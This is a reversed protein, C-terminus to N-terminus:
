GQYQNQMHLLLETNVLYLAELAKLVRNSAHGLANRTGSHRLTHPGLYGLAKPAWASLHEKLARTDQTGLHGLTWTGQTGQTDRHGLARRTGLVWTGM